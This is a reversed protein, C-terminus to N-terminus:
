RDRCWGPVRPAPWRPEHRDARVGFSDDRVDRLGPRSSLARAVRV